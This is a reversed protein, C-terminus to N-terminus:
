TTADLETLTSVKAMYESMDMWRVKPQAGVLNPRASLLRRPPMERAGPLPGVLTATLIASPGTRSGSTFPAMSIGASDSLWYVQYSDCTPTCNVPLLWNVNAVAKASNSQPPTFQANTNSVDSLTTVGKKLWLDTTIANNGSATRVLRASFDINYIGTTTFQVIFNGPNTGCTTGTPNTSGSM